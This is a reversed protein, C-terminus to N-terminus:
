TRQLFETKTAIGSNAYEVGSDHKNLSAVFAAAAAQASALHEMVQSALGMSQTDNGMGGAMLDAILQEWGSVRAGLHAAEDAAAQRAAEINPAEVTDGTPNTSRPQPPVLRIPIVEAYPRPTPDPEAPRPVPQPLAPVPDPAAGQAAPEPPDTWTWPDAVPRASRRRNWADQAAERMRRWYTGDAHDERWAEHNDRADAYGDRLASWLSPFGHRLQYFGYGAANRRAANRVMQERRDKSAHPFQQNIRKRTERQSIRFEGVKADWMAGLIRVTFFILVIEM